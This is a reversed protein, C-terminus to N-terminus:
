GSQFTGEITTPPCLIIEKVQLSGSYLWYEKIQDAILEEEELAPTIFEAISDFFHGAKQLGDGM